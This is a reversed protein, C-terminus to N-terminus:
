DKKLRRVKVGSPTTFYEYEEKQTQQKAQKPAPSPKSQTPNPVVPVDPAVKTTTTTKNGMGDDKESKITKISADYKAKNLASQASYEKETLKHQSRLNDLKVQVGYHYDYTKRMQDYRNNDIAMKDSASMGNGKNKDADRKAQIQERRVDINDKQVKLKYALEDKLEQQKDAYQLMNMKGQAVLQSYAALKNKHDELLKAYANTSENATNDANPQVNYGNHAQVATFVSRLGQGISNLAARQKYRQEQETDIQPKAADLIAETASVYQKNRADYDPQHYGANQQVTSSPMAPTADVMKQVDADGVGLAHETNDQALQESPSVYKDPITFPAPKNVRLNKWYAHWDSLPASHEPPTLPPQPAEPQALETETAQPQEAVPRVEAADQQVNNQQQDEKPDSIYNLLNM